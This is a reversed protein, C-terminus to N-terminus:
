HHHVHPSTFLGTRLGAAMLIAALMAATSGKGNTGTIHLYRTRGLQPDGLRRLLERIRSLGPQVGFTYLAHLKALAEQYEM